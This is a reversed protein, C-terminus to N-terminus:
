FPRGEAHYRAGALTAAFSVVALALGADLFVARGTASASLILLAVLVLVLTDLALLRALATRSRIVLLVTAFLLVCMWAVASFFVPDSM